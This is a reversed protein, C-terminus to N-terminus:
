LVHWILLTLQCVKLILKVSVTIGRMSYMHTLCTFMVATVMRNCFSNCICSLLTNRFILYSIQDTKNFRELYKTRGVYLSYASSTASHAMTQRTGGSKYQVSLTLAHESSVLYEPLHSEASFPVVCLVWLYVSISSRLLKRPCNHCQVETCSRNLTQSDLLHLKSNLLTLVSSASTWFEHWM